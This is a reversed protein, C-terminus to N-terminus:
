GALKNARLQRNGYGVPALDILIARRWEAHRRDCFADCAVAGERVEFGTWDRNLALIECDCDLDNAVATCGTVWFESPELPGVAMTNRFMPPGDVTSSTPSKRLRRKTQREGQM